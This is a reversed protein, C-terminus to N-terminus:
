PRSPTMSAIEEGRRDHLTVRDVTLDDHLPVDVYWVGWGPSGPLRALSATVEGDGTSVVVSGAQGTGTYLGSLVYRDGVIETNLGVGPHQLDLNGDAVSRFQHDTEPTSWHKGEETLWIEVGAGARVHEGPAVVRVPDAAPADPPTPPAAVRGRTPPVHDPSVARLTISALPVLLLGCAVALGAARRRRRARGAREIAALPVLSPTLADAVAGFAAQLREAEHRPQPSPRSTRSM